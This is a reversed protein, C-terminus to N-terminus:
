LFRGWLLAGLIGSWFPAALIALPFAPAFRIGWKIRLSKPADPSEKIAELAEKSLGDMDRKSALRKGDIVLDEAVMDGERLESLPIEKQMAVEEVSRIYILLFYFMPPMLLTFLLLGNWPKFLIIMSASAIIALSLVLWNEKIRHWSLSFVKPSRLSLMLAYLLSYPVSVLAFAMFFGIFAPFMAFPAGIVTPALLGGLSAGIGAILKADGGGWGGTYFLLAGFGFFIGGVILGDLFYNYDGLLASFVARLALAVIVLGITFKDPIEGTKLDFYSAATSFALATGFMALNATYFDMM